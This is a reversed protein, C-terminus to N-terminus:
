IGSFMDINILVNWSAHLDHSLDTLVGSRKLQKFIRRFSRLDVMIKEWSRCMRVLIDGSGLSTQMWSFMGIHMLVNWSAHLDHSLETLVGLRIVEKFIRRISRLDVMIKEWSRFAKQAEWMFTRICTSMNLPIYVLCPDPSISTRMHPLQSFKTTCRRVKRRM